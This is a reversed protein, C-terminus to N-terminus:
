YFLGQAIRNNWIEKASNLDNKVKDQVQNIVGENILYTGAFDTIIGTILIIITFNITLKTKLSFKTNM